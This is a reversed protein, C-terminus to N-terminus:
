GVGVTVASSSPFASAAMRQMQWGTPSCSHLIYVIPFYSMAGSLLPAHPFSNLSDLPKCVKGYVLGSFEKALYRTKRVLLLRQHEFQRGVKNCVQIYGSEKGAQLLLKRLTVSISGGSNWLEQYHGGFLVVRKNVPQAQHKKTSKDM